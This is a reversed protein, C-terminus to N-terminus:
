RLSIWGSYGYALTAGPSTSVAPGAVTGTSNWIGQVGISPFTTVGLSGSWSWGSVLSQVGPVSSATLPGFTAVRSPPATAGVALLRSVLARWDLGTSHAGGLAEFRVFEAM